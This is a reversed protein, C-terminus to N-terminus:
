RYIDQYEYHFISDTAENTKQIITECKGDVNYEIIQATTYHETLNEM